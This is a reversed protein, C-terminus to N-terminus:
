PTYMRIADFGACPLQLRHGDLDLAMYYGPVTQLLQSRTAVRLHVVELVCCCHHRHM